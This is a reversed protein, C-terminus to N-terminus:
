VFGPLRLQRNDIPKGQERIAVAVKMRRARENVDPMYEAGLPKSGM